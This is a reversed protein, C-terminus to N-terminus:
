VDYTEEGFHTCRLAMRYDGPGPKPVTIWGDPDCLRCVRRASLFAPPMMENCLIGMRKPTPFKEFEREAKTFADAIVHAPYIELVEDFVRKLARLSDPKLRKNHVALLMDLRREILSRPSLDDQTSM